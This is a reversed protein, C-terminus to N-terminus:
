GHEAPTVWQVTGQVSSGLPLPQALAIRVHAAEFRYCAGPAITESVGRYSVRLPVPVVGQAPLPENILQRDQATAYSENNAPRGSDNCVQVERPEHYKLTTASTADSLTFTSPPNGPPAVFSQSAEAQAFTAGAVFAAAAVGTIGIRFPLLTKRTM